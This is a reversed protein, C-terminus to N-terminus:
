KATDLNFQQNITNPPVHIEYGQQMEAQYIVWGKYKEQYWEEVIGIKTYIAGTDITDEYIIVDDAPLYDFVFGNGENRYFFYVVEEKSYGSFIFTRGEGLTTNTLSVIDYTKEISITRPIKTGVETTIIYPLLFFIAALMSCILVKFDTSAKKIGLFVMFSAISCSIIVSYM